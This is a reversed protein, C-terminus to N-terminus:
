RIKNQIVRNLCKELNLDNDAYEMKVILDGSKFIYPNEVEMMFKMFRTQIPLNTDIKVKAFEDIQNSGINDIKAKKTNEIKKKIATIDNM